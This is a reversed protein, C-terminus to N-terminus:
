QQIELSEKVYQDTSKFIHLLNFSLYLGLRLGSWDSTALKGESLKINYNNSSVFVGKKFDLLYGAVLGLRFFLIPYSLKFTPEYYWNKSTFLYEDEKSESNIRLYENLRLKSFEIGAENNFSFRFKNLPFYFEALLGPSFARIKTDFFYEGSYDVRSIRSGSSQYSCAIGLTLFKKMSYQLLLKNNWYNPFNNTIKADFPLSSLNIANFEKLDKMGYAGIGPELALNLEQAFLPVPLSILIYVIFFVNRMFRLFIICTTM